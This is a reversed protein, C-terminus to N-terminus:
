LSIFFYNNVSTPIGIEINKLGNRKIKEQKEKAV